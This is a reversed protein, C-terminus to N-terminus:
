FDEKRFGCPWISGFKCSAVIPTEENRGSRVEFIATVPLEQKQNASIEFIKEESVVHGFPVLSYLFCRHSTRQLTEENRRSQVVFMAVLPLEQKQNASIEFYIRRQFCKALHFWVKCSAYISLGKCLERMEDLHSLM